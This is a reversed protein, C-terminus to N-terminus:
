ETVLGPINAGNMVSDSGRSPIGKIRTKVKVPYKRGSLPLVLGLISASVTTNESNKMSEVM